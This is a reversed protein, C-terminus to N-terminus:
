GFKFNRLTGYKELHNDYYILDQPGYCNQVIEGTSEYTIDWRVLLYLIDEDDVPGDFGIITGSVDRPNCEENMCWFRSEPKLMVRDGIQFKKNM